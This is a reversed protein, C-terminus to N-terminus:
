PRQGAAVCTAVVLRLIGRGTRTGIAIVYAAHLSSAGAKRRVALTALVAMASVIAAVGIAKCYLLPDPM